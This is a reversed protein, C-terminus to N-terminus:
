PAFRSGAQVASSALRTLRDTRGLWSYGKQATTLGSTTSEAFLLNWTSAGPTWSSDLTVTVTNGSVSDVSGTRVTPSAADWEVIRIEMGAAFFSADAVSGGPGYEDADLTLVWATTAGTQSAIRGTPTYGGADLSDLMLTLSVCPEDMRWSRGVVTSRKAILGGGGGDISREGDYPLQPITVYLCDGITATALTASVTITLQARQRAWLFVAGQLHDYLAVSDPEGGWARSKPAVELATRTRQVNLAELMTVETVPGTHDDEKSDYGTRITLGTLVGDPEYAIEGFGDEAVLDASTITGDTTTRTTLPRLTIAGTSTTAPFLGYLRCEHKVFDSLRVPSSFRYVRHLLWPKGAAAELVAAELDAYAAFDGELVFPIAGSNATLPADQWLTQLMQALHVGDGYSRTLTIEPLRTQTFAMADWSMGVPADGADYVLRRTDPDIEVYGAGSDVSTVDAEVTFAPSDGLAPVGITLPDSASVGSVSALYLRWWPSSTMQAPTGTPAGWGPHNISRPTGRVDSAPMTPGLIDLTVPGWRCRYETNAYVVALEYDTTDWGTALTGVFQGDVASGGYVRLYRPDASATSYFLEWRGGVERAAIDVGWTAVTSDAAIASTLAECFAAQSEYHGVIDIVAAGDVDTSATADALRRITIRFPVHGPYYIGRLAGAGERPGIDADLLTTMPAVGISWTMGGSLQPAGSVVGRAVLTGSSARGFESSGHGYIWVRRRRYTAPADWIPCLLTRDGILASATVFHAQATTRYVGREVEIYKGGDGESKATVRVAETDIHVVQGIQIQSYDHVFISTDSETCSISMYAIARPVKSFVSSAARKNWAVSQDTDEITVSGVAAKYDAGPLYCSEQFSLGDRLLGGVRRVGDLGAFDNALVCAMEHSTCFELPCGEIAVRFEARGSGTSLYQTFTTM